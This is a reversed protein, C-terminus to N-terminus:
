DTALFTPPSKAILSKM